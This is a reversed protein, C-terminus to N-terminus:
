FYASLNASRLSKGKICLHKNGGVHGLNSTSTFTYPVQMESICAHIYAHINLHERGTFPVQWKLAQWVHQILAPIYFQLM